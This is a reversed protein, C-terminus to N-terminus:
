KLVIQDVDRWAVYVPDDGNSFVLMGDNKRSVDQSEELEITQGNRLEVMARKRGKPTISVIERFPILFETDGMRGHLLEADLAEDLDYVIRGSITEGDDTTIVGTIDKAPTFDSYSPGSGKPEDFSVSEFDDWAVKVKGNQGKIIVGRNDDDVDNTGKLYLERGSRLTVMSGRRHKEISAINGFEINMDGDESEGDLIDTSLCEQHDWQVRGTFTGADSVVTGYLPDGLKPDLTEPTDMFEVQEIRKWKIKMAGLEPDLVTIRAGIDNSGGELEIKKGGRFTVIVDDGGDMQIAKLDGFRVAFLHTFNGSSRGGFWSWGSNNRDRLDDIDDDDLYDINENDVKTSNFIDDWYTEETGWRLQGTYTDGDVTTIRGYIYGTDSAAAPMALAGLGLAVVMIAILGRM